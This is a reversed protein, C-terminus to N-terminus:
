FGVVEIRGDNSVVYKVNLWFFYLLWMCSGNLTACFDPQHCSLYKTNEGQFKPFHDLNVQAYKEFPNTFFWWSSFLPVCIKMALKGLVLFGKWTVFHNGGSNCHRVETCAGDTHKLGGFPRKTERSSNKKPPLPVMTVTAPHLARPFYPFFEPYKTSTISLHNYGLTEPSWMKIPM